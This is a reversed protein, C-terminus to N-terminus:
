KKDKRSKDINAINSGRTQNAAKAETTSKSSASQHQDARSSTNNSPKFYYTKYSSMRGSQPALKFNSNPYYGSPREKNTINKTKTTLYSAVNIIKSGLEHASHVGMSAYSLQMMLGQTKLLSLITALGLVTSLVVNTSDTSSLNGLLSAALKLIIVHVFLVFIAILYIKVATKTFEKFSPLLWLLAVIPSLVAGLFLAVLRGIYYIVLIISLIIFVLMILLAALSQGSINTTAQSLTQWISSGGDLQNVTSILINSFEIVGDIIFISVNSLLFVLITQPLIRKIDIPELGFVDAGIIHCGLLVIILVFVIDGISTMALWLNFVSKNQSMLPTSNTFSDLLSLFPSAITQVINSIFGGALNIFVDSLGNDASKPKINQLTISSSGNSSNNKPLSGDLIRTIAFAGIIIVLGVLSNILIHKAKQLNDPNGRSTIYLFGSYIICFVSVLIAIACILKATPAIYNKLVSFSNISDAFFTLNM